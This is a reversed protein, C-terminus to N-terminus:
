HIYHRQTPRYVPLEVPAIFDAREFLTELDEETLATFARLNGARIGVIWCTELPSYTELGDQVIYYTM